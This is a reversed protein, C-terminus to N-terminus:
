RYFASESFATVLCEQCCCGAMAAQLPVMVLAVGVVVWIACSLM